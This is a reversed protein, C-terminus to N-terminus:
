SHDSYLPANSLQGVEPREYNIVAFDPIAHDGLSECAVEDVWDELM